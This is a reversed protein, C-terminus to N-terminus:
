EMENRHRIRAPIQSGESVMDISRTKVDCNGRERSAPLKVRIERLAADSGERHRATATNFVGQGDGSQCMPQHPFSNVDDLHMEELGAHDPKYGRPQCVDGKCNEGPMVRVFDRQVVPQAKERDVAPTATGESV